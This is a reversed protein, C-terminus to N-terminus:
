AAERCNRYRPTSVLDVLGENGSWGAGVVREGREKGAERVYERCTIKTLENLSHGAGMPILPSHDKEEASM